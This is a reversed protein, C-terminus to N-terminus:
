PLEYAILVILGQSNNARVTNISHLVTGIGLSQLFTQVATTVSSATGEIKETRLKTPDQIDGQPM